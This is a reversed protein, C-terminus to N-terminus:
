FTWGDRRALERAKDKDGGAQQLYAAAKEPTLAGSAQAAGGGTPDKKGQWREILRAKQEQIKRARFGLADLEAKLEAAGAEDKTGAKLIEGIQLRREHTANEQQELDRLTKRDAELQRADFRDQTAQQGATLGSRRISAVTRVNARSKEGEAARFAHEKRQREERAKREIEAQEEKFKRTKEGEESRSQASIISPAVRPVESGFMRVGPINPLEVGIRQRLDELAQTEALKGEIGISRLVREALVRQALEREAQEEPTLLERMITEGTRTRYKVTRSSDPKRHVTIGPARFGGVDPGEPGAVTVMGATVPRSVSELLMQNRLDEMQAQQQLQELRAEELRKQRIAHGMQVGRQMADLVSMMPYEM